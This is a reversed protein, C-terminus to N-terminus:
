PNPHPTPATAPAPPPTAAPSAAQVGSDPKEDNARPVCDINFDRTAALAGTQLQECAAVQKQQHSLDKSTIVWRSSVWLRGTSQGCAADNPVQLLSEQFCGVIPLPQDKPSLTAWPVSCAPHFNGSADRSLLPLPRNRTRPAVILNDPVLCGNSAAAATAPPDAPATASALLSLMVLILCAHKM